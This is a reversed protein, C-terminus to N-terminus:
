PIEILETTQNTANYIFINKIPVFQHTILKFIEQSAISGLMTTVSYSELQLSTRLSNDINDINTEGNVLKLYSNSEESYKTNTTTITQPMNPEVVAIDDLNKLFEQIENSNLKEDCFQMDYLTSFDKCDSSFKEIFIKKLRAYNESSSELDPLIGSFPIRGYKSIFQETTLILNLLKKDYKSLYKSCERPSTILEKVFEFVPVFKTDYINDNANILYAYKKAQEYNLDYFADKKYRTLYVEELRQKIAKTSPNTVGDIVKYLIVPYPVTAAAVDNKLDDDFSNLFSKYEPWPDKLRLDPINRDSHTNSIFHPSPYYMRIHGLMGNVHTAISKIKFPNNTFLAEAKNDLNLLLFLDTQPSASMLSLPDTTQDIHVDDNLPLVNSIVNDLKCDCLNNLTINKVGVLIVNKLTEELLDVTKNAANDIVITIHSNELLHQGDHGWLRLQRDYRDFIQSM